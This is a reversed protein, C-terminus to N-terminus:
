SDEGEAAFLHLLDNAAAARIYVPIVDIPVPREISTAGTLREGSWADVWEGAPLYVQWHEAEPDTVPAVLLDDGFFYQRPFDWIRPDDDIEFFLARMLPLRREVAARAQSVVYPLLRERLRAYRRFVPLVREDGTREAINWPTRDISPVRHRNFESHYQMIPCFCAAATSRLYLEASPIEGSFGAIDWGWFFIGSAGATLGATISARYADWTSSEDGAWHCPFAASGTFGARSFTFPERGLEEFLEHYTQAYLVPYRNNTEAGTTGDAYRLDDGWANEGGDTKFGDVGLEEVLYRRKGRWWARAEPSTLDPILSGTFWWHRNRYPRGDAERVVYGRAIAAEHDHRLQGQPAPWAKLAPIQWLVVKIGRRHLEDVMVKPDPWAGDEPFSFDVLRHPGGDVRPEYQADRFATYTSEDSWAEIVVVGAPIGEQEGRDVEAMVRAQTNWENSSIWPRFVWDPPLAPAATAAMFAQLVDAPSGSYLQLELEPRRPDIAAEIWFRDDDSKGVDFWARRSTALHFGWTSDGCVIAFPIPLYTRSGQHKYQEFVVTDFARGRQDLADFREGFGVAREEPELRLAFRVRQPGDAGVLWSVTEGDLRAGLAGAPDSVHLRGGDEKQWRAVGFEFWRTRMPAGGNTSFRYRVHGQEPADLTVTWALRDAGRGRGSAAADLHGSGPPPSSLDDAAVAAGKAVAALTHLKGDIEVDVVVGAVGAATTARLEVREGALPQVPVRQDPEVLYAHGRGTPRHRIM